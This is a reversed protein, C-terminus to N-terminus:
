LCPERIYCHFEIEDVEGYQSPLEMSDQESTFGASQMLDFFVTESDHRRKLSVLIIAGPSMRVLRELCHVLVPLSDANYTCDSVLILEIPRSCLHDPPQEWDLNQYEISSKTSGNSCLNSHINRTMIDEVEPLDTLLVSCQRMQALGIGVIGCGAGLEVVQIPTPRDTSLVKRLASFRPGTDNGQDNGELSARGSPHGLMRHFYVVTAFGADRFCDPKSDQTQSMFDFTLKGSTDLM